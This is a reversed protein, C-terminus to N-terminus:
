FHGERKKALIEVYQPEIKEALLLVEAMCAGIRYVRFINYLSYTLEAKGNDFM